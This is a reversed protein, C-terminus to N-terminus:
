VAHFLTPLFPTVIKWYPRWTKPALGENVDKATPLAARTEKPIKINFINLFFFLIFIQFVTVDTVRRSLM